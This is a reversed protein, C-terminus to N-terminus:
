SSLSMGDSCGYGPDRRKVWEELMEDGPFSDKHCVVFRTAKNLTRGNIIKINEVGRDPVGVDPHDSTLLAVESSIPFTLLHYRDDRNGFSPWDSTIFPADRTTSLFHWRWPLIRQQWRLACVVVADFLSTKLLKSDIDSTFPRKITQCWLKLLREDTPNTALHQKEVGEILNPTRAMQFGVFLAVLTREEDTLNMPNLAAKKLAPSCPTDVNEALFQEFDDVREGSLNYESYLFPRWGVGKPTRRNPDWRGTKREFVRLSESFMPEAFQKLHFQPSHHHRESQAM